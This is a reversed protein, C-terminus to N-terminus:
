WWWWRLTEVVVVVVVDDDDDGRTRVSHLRGIPLEAPHPVDRPVHIRPAAQGHGGPRRQWEACEDGRAPRLAGVCPRAECADLGCELVDDCVDVLM